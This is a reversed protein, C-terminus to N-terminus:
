SQRGLDAGLEISVQDGEIPALRDVIMVIIGTSVLILLLVGAIYWLRSRRDAM